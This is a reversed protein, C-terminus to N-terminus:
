VYCRKGKKLRELLDGKNQWSASLYPDVGLAMSYCDLADEQQGLAESATGLNNWARAKVRPGDGDRTVLEKYIAKAEAHRGHLMLLVGM